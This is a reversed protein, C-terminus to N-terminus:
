FDFDDSHPSNSNNETHITDEGPTGNMITLNKNQLQNDTAIEKNQNDKDTGVQVILSSDKNIKDIQLNLAIEDNDRSGGTAKKSGVIIVNEKLMEDKDEDSEFFDKPLDIDYKRKLRQRYKEAEKKHIKKPSVIPGDYRNIFSYKELRKKLSLKEADECQAISVELRKKYANKKLCTKLINKNPGYPKLQHPALWARTADTDFFVVNYHTPIDSFGDLWYYQETDPCDDVMAPWWPWGPLRALVLSGAAYESHILDEEDHLRIPIEPISCNAMKADPNMKCYWKKPLEYSDLIHPLYRWQNCTDCQVWLGSTRRKQLWQLKQLQTTNDPPQSLVEKYGRIINSRSKSNNLVDKFTVTDKGKEKESHMKPQHANEAPECAKEMPLQVEEM